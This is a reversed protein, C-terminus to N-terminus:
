ETSEVQLKNSKTEKKENHKAKIHRLLSDRRSYVVGCISCTPPKKNSKKKSRHTKGHVKHYHQMLSERKIYDLGCITCKM